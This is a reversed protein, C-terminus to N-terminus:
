ERMLGSVLLRMIEEIYKLFTEIIVHYKISEENPKDGLRKYSKRLELVVDDM